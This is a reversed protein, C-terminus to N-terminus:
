WLTTRHSRLCDEVFTFGWRQKNTICSLKDLLPEIAVEQASFYAVDRRWPIFEIAMRFEYPDGPAIKGIATFKRCPTKQGFVETPSYYIIWDGSQMRKLSAQNGHCVQSFGETVGRLVHEKSAVGIWYRAM